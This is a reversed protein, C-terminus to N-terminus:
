TIVDFVATGVQQLFEVTTEADAVSIPWRTQLTPDTPDLDAEHAIQNRRDVIANLRVKVASAPMGVKAAVEDWLAKASVMRLADAVKDPRQFSLWSHRIRLEQDFPGADSPNGLLAGLTELSVEFRLYAATPPRAGDFTELCGLRTLEHIFHDFASVALVIEARLLDTLDLAPTTTNQLAAFM